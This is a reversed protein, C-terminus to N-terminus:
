NHPIFIRQLAPARNHPQTAFNLPSTSHIRVHSQSSNEERMSQDLTQNLFVKENTIKELFIPEAQAQSRMTFGSGSGMVLASLFLITYVATGFNQSVQSKM